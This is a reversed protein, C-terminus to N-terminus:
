KEALKKLALRLPSDDLTQSLGNLADRATKGLKRPTPAPPSRQFSVQVKVHIRSVECSRNQLM